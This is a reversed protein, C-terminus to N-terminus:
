IHKAHGCDYWNNGECILTWGGYDDLTDDSEDCLYIDQDGVGEVNEMTTTFAIGTIAIFLAQGDVGGTFGGIIVNASAPNIFITNVGSVDTNDASATITLTSSSIAGTVDFACTPAANRVGVKGDSGQVFLANTQGVAEVRFDVDEGGENIIVYSGFGSEYMDIMHFGGTVFFFQDTGFIIGTNLDGYHYLYTQIYVQTNQIINGSMVLDATLTAGGDKLVVGDVTVGANGTHENITDVTLSNPIDVTGNASISMFEESGTTGCKFSLKGENDAGDRIADIYALPGVPLGADEINFVMGVGFNNAIDGSTKHSILFPYRVINTQASTHEAIISLADAKSATINECTIDGSVTLGGFTPSGTVQYDQGGLIADGRINLIRSVGGTDFELIRDQNIVTDQETRLFLHYGTDFDFLGVGGKGFEGAGDIILGSFAPSAGTHLDQPGTLTISGDGDDSVTVRNATGTVWDVLNSSVLVKNADTAILRSATLGTFTLGAFTPESTPGLKTNLKRIASRVSRWDDVKIQEALGM